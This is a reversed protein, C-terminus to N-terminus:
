RLTKPVYCVLDVDSEADAAVPSLAEWLFELDAESLFPMPSLNSADGSAPRSGPVLRGTRRLEGLLPSALRGAISSVPSVTFTSQLSCFVGPLYHQSDDLTSKSIHLLHYSHTPEPPILESLLPKRPTSLDCATDTIHPM